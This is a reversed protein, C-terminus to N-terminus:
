SKISRRSSSGTWYRLTHRIERMGGDPKPIEVRRIPMPKYEGAELQERIGSWKEKLCPMLAEVSMNDIGAAGKNKMVQSYAKRMNKREVLREILQVDEPISNEEELPHNSMSM